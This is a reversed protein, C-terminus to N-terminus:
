AAHFVEDTLLLLFDEGELKNAVQGDETMYDFVPEIPQNAFAFRPWKKQEIIVIHRGADDRCRIRRTEEFRTM